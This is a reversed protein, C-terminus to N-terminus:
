RLKKKKGGSQIALLLEDFRKDILEVIHKEDRGGKYFAAMMGFKVDMAAFRAEMSAEM